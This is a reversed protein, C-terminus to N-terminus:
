ILLILRPPPPLLLLVQARILHDVREFEVLTLNDSLAIEFLAPMIRRLTLAVTSRAAIAEYVSDVGVTLLGSRIQLLVVYRLAAVSLQNSRDLSRATKLADFIPGSITENDFEDVIEKLCTLANVRVATSM